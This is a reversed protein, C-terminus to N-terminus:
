LVLVFYHSRLMRLGLGQQVLSFWGIKVLVISALRARWSLCVKYFRGRHSHIATGIAQLSVFWAMFLAFSRARRDLGRLQSSGARLSSIARVGGVATVGRRRGFRWIKQVLKSEEPQDVSQNREFREEFTSMMDRTRKLFRPQALKDFDGICRVQDPSLIVVLLFWKMMHLRMASHRSLNRRTPQGGNEM